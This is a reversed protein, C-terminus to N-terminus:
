HFSGDIKHPKRCAENGCIVMSFFYAKDKIILHYTGQLPHLLAQNQLEMFSSGPSPTHRQTGPSSVSASSLVPSPPSLLWLWRIACMGLAAPIQPSLGSGSGGGPPSATFPSTESWGTPLHATTGPILETRSQDLPEGPSMRPPSVWALQQHIKTKVGGVGAGSWCKASCCSLSHKCGSLAPHGERNLTSGSVTEPAESLDNLRQVM